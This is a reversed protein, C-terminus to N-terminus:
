DHRVATHDVPLYGHEICAELIERAIPGAVHGGSGGYEVMVAFAIRPNQAPAFGIFWAHNLQDSSRGSYHYWPAEPHTNDPGAPELFRRQIRGNEDRLYNGADDKLKVSFRSAQATGTKGAVVVGLNALNLDWASGARSSVVRMMGEKAAAVAQPNLHLDVADDIAPQTSTKIGRPVLRPRMWIGGRAITAAINAMQLPTAAVQGQGIGAFWTTMQRNFKPGKYSNPLRGSAEDIGVGTPRGIGFRSYWKSLDDMGIRDAVTEFYVNCSRELADTFTLFGTPHPDDPPMQHHAVNIGLEKAREGWISVTWCRGNPYRHGNIVLYGTCEITDTLSIVGQTIGSLGCVPKMTSGPELQAQTARNMLPSNIEDNVLLSYKEDLTNLDYLPYSVLARLEGTAVDMVVAAGHMEFTEGTVTKGHRFFDEIQRQLDIDLTTKVTQGPISEVRQVARDDGLTRELKGRTGRLTPECLEELGARGILDNPLYERLEDLGLNNDKEMDEKSVRSLHGIVHAATENYPYFRHTSPRLVLGPYREANKGLINVTDTDIAPLIVHPEAQEAVTVSYKDLEAAPTTDDLLWRKYWPSPPRNKFKEQARVFKTYWVSRRRMEIRQIIARRTEDIRATADELPETPTKRSLRALDLWMQSIDSEVKAIEQKLQIAREAVSLPTAGPHSKIRSLAVSRIWHARITAPSNTNEDSSKKKADDPTDGADASDAAPAPYQIARYDICADICASDRALENNHIDLLPGRTTEIVQSRRMTDEARGRWYERRLLQVQVARLLLIATILVLLSLFIKLRREFM